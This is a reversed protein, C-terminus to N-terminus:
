SLPSLMEVFFLLIRLACVPNSPERRIIVYEGETAYGKYYQIGVIKTSLVGTVLILKVPAFRWTPSPAEGKKGYLEFSETASNDGDQSLIIVHDADEEDDRDAWTDRQSQSFGQADLSRPVKRSQPESSTNDNTLDIVEIPRKGNGRRAM